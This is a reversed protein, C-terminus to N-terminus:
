ANGRHAVAEQDLDLRRQDQLRPRRRQGVPEVREGADDRLPCARPSRGAGNNIVIFYCHLPMDPIMRLGACPLTFMAFDMREERVSRQPPGAFLFSYCCWVFAHTREGVLIPETAVRVGHEGGGQPERPPTEGLHFNIASPEYRM